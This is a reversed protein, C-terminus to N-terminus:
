IGVGERGRVLPAFGVDIQEVEEWSTEPAVAATTPVAAAARSRKNCKGVTPAATAAAPTAATQQARAQEKLKKKEEKYKAVTWGRERCIRKQEEAEAARKQEKAAERKVRLDTYWAEVAFMAYFAFEIRQLPTLSPDM